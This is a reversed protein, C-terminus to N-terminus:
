FETMVRELFDASYDGQRFKEHQLLWKHFEVNHQIGEIQIESLASLMREIAEDRDEGWTILKGFMSDYYPSIEYGQYIHSDWRVGHGGPIHLKTIIGPSPLFSQLPDEAFLRCELAHATPVIESQEYAIEAGAAIQIQAKVLDVGYVMETVTHEVQIRTNMEMFYFEDNEDLLFEVTGANLYNVAKAGRVAALGMKKRLRSSVVPSPSEEIVKQHRRQLSCEREGFHVINGHSDGLLQIEIHRPNKIYKEIYVKDNGFVAGAESRALRYAKILENENAALRMGRGGGGASAKIMVPYGIKKCIKLLEVENNISRESGPLVPVGAAKMEAKAQAKDAMREIQAATPGIFVLGHAACIEAFDSNESLYGYGPHVADAGSLVAASIINPIHLYSSSSQAPGVCIAQDAFKVHLSEQDAESYIAATKIGLERCARIVRLAIEGRNAILVKEFM